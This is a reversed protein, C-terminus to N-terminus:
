CDRGYRVAQEIESRHPIGIDRLTRDDLEALDAVFAAIEREHRWRRWKSAVSSWPRTLWHRHGSRDAELSRARYSEAVSAYESLAEAKSGTRNTGKEPKFRKVEPNASSSVIAIFRRRERVSLKEPQGAETEAPSSQEPNIPLPYLLLAYLAFGEMFASIVATFIRDARPAAGPPPDMEALDLRSPQAPNRRAARGDDRLDFNLEQGRVDYRRAARNVPKSSNLM